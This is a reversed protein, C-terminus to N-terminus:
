PLLQSSCSALISKMAGKEADTIWLSYKYKVAIQRALYECRFAKNEPLWTAADGDAKAQNAKGDVALLELPDNALLNRQEPTLLQAGKQWADSLAVVHDIQVDDSTANGRLFIIQKGTYPDDLIGSEVKCENNVVVHSMDRKLIVNRMDCMGIKAWGNGFETRKYGSKPSRGKVSLLELIHLASQKTAVPTDAPISPVPRYSNENFVIGWISAAILFILVIVRRTRYSRRRVM